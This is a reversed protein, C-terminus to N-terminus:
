NHTNFTQTLLGNKQIQFVKLNLFNLKQSASMPLDEILSRKTFRYFGVRLQNTVFERMKNAQKIDDIDDSGSWPM